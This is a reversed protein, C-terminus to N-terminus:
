YQALVGHRRAFRLSYQLALFGLPTLLLAWVALGLVENGLAQIPMGQLLARRLGSLAITFPLSEAFLRLFGPLVSIPYIVGGLVTSVTGVLWTFPDTEKIVLTFAASMIGLSCLSLLMLLFLVSVSLLDAHDFRVGFVWAGIALYLLVVLTAWVFQYVSSYVIVEYTNIPSQMILELSGTFQERRIILRFSNLSVDLYKSFAVGILAFTFYDGGYAALWKEASGGVILSLFYFSFVSGFAGVIDIGFGAPYSCAFAFERKLYAFLRNPIRFSM